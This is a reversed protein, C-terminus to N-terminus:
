RKIGDSNTMAQPFSVFHPSVPMYTAYTLTCICDCLLRLRTRMFASLSVHTIALSLLADVLQSSNRPSATFSSQLPLNRSVTVMQFLLDKGISPLTLSLVAHLVAASVVSVPWTSNQGQTAINPSDSLIHLFNAQLQSSLSGAFNMSCDLSYSLPAFLEPPPAVFTVCESRLSHPVTTLSPVIIIIRFGPHLQNKAFFNSWDKICQFVQKTTSSSSLTMEEPRSVLTPCKYSRATRIMLLLVPALCSQLIAASSESSVNVAVCGGDAAAEIIRANSHADLLIHEISAIGCRAMMSDLAWSSLEGVFVIPFNALGPNRIIQELATHPSETLLSCFDPYSVAELFATSAQIIRDPRLYLLLVLREVPTCERLLGPMPEVEPM